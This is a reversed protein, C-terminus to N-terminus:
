VRAPKSVPWPDRDQGGTYPLLTADCNSATEGGRWLLRARMAHSDSNVRLEQHDAALRFGAQHAILADRFAVPDRAMGETFAAAADAERGTARLEGILRQFQMATARRFLPEFTSPATARARELAALFRAHAEEPKRASRPMHGNHRRKRVLPRPILGIQHRVAIRLFIEWDEETEYSPDESFVGVEDLVHRRVLVSSTVIFIAALLHEVVWGSALPVTEGRRSIDQGTADDFLVADSYVMGAEPHATLYELRQELADPVWLDDSDLFAIYAGRAIAIGANRVVGPLGSHPTRLYRIAGQTQALVGALGDTSGDDVVIIEYEDVSQRLVSQLTEGILHARNYVPIIVSVAPGPM